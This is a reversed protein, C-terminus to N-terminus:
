VSVFQTIDITSLFNCSVLKNLILTSTSFLNYNSSYVNLVIQGSSKKGGSHVISKSSTGCDQGPGMTQVRNWLAWGDFLRSYVQQDVNNRGNFFENIDFNQNWIVLLLFWIRSSWLYVFIMRTLNIVPWHHLGCANKIRWYTEQSCTRRELLVDLFHVNIAM